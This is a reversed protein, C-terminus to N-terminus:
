VAYTNAPASPVTLTTSFSGNTVSTTAASGALSVSASASQDFQYGSVAVTSGPTGSYTSLQLYPAAAVMAPLFAAAVAGALGIKKIPVSIKNRMM